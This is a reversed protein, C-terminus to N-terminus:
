KIYKPVGQNPAYINLLLIDEHHQTSNTMISHGDKDRRIKTIKFDTKDSIFIAVGAKSHISNTQLIM